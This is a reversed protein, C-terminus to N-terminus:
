TQAAVVRMLMADAEAAQPDVTRRCLGNQHDKVPKSCVACVANRIQARTRAFTGPVFHFSGVARCGECVARPSPIGNFGGEVLGVLQVHLCESCELNLAM